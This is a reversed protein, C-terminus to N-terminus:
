RRYKSIKHIETRDRKYYIHANYIFHCYNVLKTNTEKAIEKGFAILGLANAHFGIFADNSRFVATMYLKNDRRQFGIHQLCPTHNNYQDISPDWISIVARRTTPKENLKDIVYEKQNILKIKALYGDCEEFGEGISIKKFGRYNHIRDYYTYVFDKKIDKGYVLNNIYNKVGASKMSYKPNILDVKPNTIEVCVNMLELCKQGDETTVVDGDNLITEVLEEYASRVTPKRIMIMFRGGM